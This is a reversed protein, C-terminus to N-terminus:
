RALVPMHLIILALNLTSTQTDRCLWSQRSQTLGPGASHLAQLASQDRWVVEPVPLQRRWRIPSPIRNRSLPTFVRRSSALGIQLVQAPSYQKLWCNPLSQCRSESASAATIMSSLFCRTPSIASSTTSHPITRRFNKRQRPRSRREWPLSSMVSSTPIRAVLQTPTSEFGADSCYSHVEVLMAKDNEDRVELYAQVANKVYSKESGGAVCLDGLLEIIESSAASIDKAQM